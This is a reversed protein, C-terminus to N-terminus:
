HCDACARGTVLARVKRNRTFGGQPLAGRRRRAGSCRSWEGTVKLLIVSLPSMVQKAMLAYDGLAWVAQHESALTTIKAPLPTSTWRPRRAASFSKDIAVENDARIIGCGITATPL